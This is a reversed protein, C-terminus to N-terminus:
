NEESFLIENKLADLNFGNYEKKLHLWHKDTQVHNKRVYKLVNSNFDDRLFSEKSRIVYGESEHEIKEWNKHIQTKNFLGEYIVPVIPVMPCILKQWEITDKWSLCTDNEWISHIFLPFGISEYKISHIFTLDELCIRFNDPINVFVMSWVKQAIDSCRGDLSRSHCGFNYFTVNEGDMKETALIEKGILSLNGLIDDSTKSESYPLHGTRPYKYKDM